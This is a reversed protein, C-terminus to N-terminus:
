QKMEKREISIISFIYVGAVARWTYSAITPLYAERMM